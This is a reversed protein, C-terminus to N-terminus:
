PLLDSLQFAYEFWESVNGRKRQDGVFFSILKSINLKFGSSRESSTIDESTQDAEQLWGALKQNQLSSIPTISARIKVLFRANAEPPLANALLLRNIRSAERKTKEFDTLIKTTDQAQIIFRENWINYAIKIFLRKHRIQRHKNRYLKVELEVIAPLGSQITGVVRPTFLHDIQFKLWLKGDRYIAKVSDIKINGDARAAADVRLLLLFLIFFYPLIPKYCHKRFHM